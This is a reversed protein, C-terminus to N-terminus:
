GGAAVALVIDVRQSEQSMGSQPDIVRKTYAVRNRDVGAALLKDVILQTRLRSLDAIAQPGDPDLYEALLVPIAPNEQAWTAAAAIVTLAEHDLMASWQTFYVAYDPSRRRIRTVIDPHIQWPMGETEPQGCNQVWLDTVDSLRECQLLEISVNKDLTNALMPHLHAEGGVLWVRGNFEALTIDAM